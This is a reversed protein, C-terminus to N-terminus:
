AEAESLSWNIPARSRFRVPANSLYWPIEPRIGPEPSGLLDFTEFSDEMRMARPRLLSRANQGCLTWLGCISCLNPLGVVM